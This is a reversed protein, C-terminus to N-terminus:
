FNMTIILMVSSTNLIPAMLLNLYIELFLIIDKKNRIKKVNRRKMKERPHFTSFAIWNHINYM